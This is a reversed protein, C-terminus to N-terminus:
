GHKLTLAGICKERVDPRMREERFIAKPAEGGLAHATSQQMAHVHADLRGDTDHLIYPHTSLFFPILGQLYTQTGEATEYPVGLPSQGIYGQHKGSHQVAREEPQFRVVEQRTGALDHLIYGGQKKPNQAQNPRFDRLIPVPIHPNSTPQSEFPQMTSVWRLQLSTLFHISIETGNETLARLSFMDAQGEKALQRYIAFRTSENCDIMGFTVFDEIIAGIEDTNEVEILMDVDSPKNMIGKEPRNGRVDYFAGWATAGSVLTGVSHSSAVDSYAKAIRLNNATALVSEYPNPTEPDAGFMPVDRRLVDPEGYQGIGLIQNELESVIASREGSLIINQIDKELVYLSRDNDLMKDATQAIQLRLEEAHVVADYPDGVKEFLSVYRNGGNHFLPAHMDHLGANYSHWQDFLVRLDANQTRIEASHSIESM